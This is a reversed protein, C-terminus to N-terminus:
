MKCGMEGEKCREIVSGNDLELLSGDISCMWLLWSASLDGLVLVVDM